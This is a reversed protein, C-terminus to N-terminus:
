EEDEDEDDELNVLNHWIACVSELKADDGLPTIRGKCYCAIYSQTKPDYEDGSSPIVGFFSRMHHKWLTRDEESFVHIVKM